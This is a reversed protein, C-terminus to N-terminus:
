YNALNISANSDRDLVLGCICKYVRDSLKLDKKINGCGSCIKSSPFWRNAKIFEIDNLNSKYEIQKVFEYFGQDKVAKSIHKNKMMGRIDLDEVVIKLPKTKAIETTAKHRYDDRINSLKRYLKRITRELKLINNTKIYKNGDKNMEYKRSAQKQLRKIKYEVNRIRKTKNVNKYRVGDSCVALECIGLDIGLNKGKNENTYEFKEDDIEVTVSIYWHIGDFSIRPNMYKIGEGYPIVNKESLNIWNFKLKNKKISTALAELKVAKDTFAIKATDVYFGPKSKKKSKFKPYRTKGRFFKYYAGYCDRIAQKPVNVSYEYLWNYEETKKLKTLEKRLDDEKLTKGTLKYHKQIKDLTYNYAWRAVGSSLHLKTAQKNNPELRIKFGKIM